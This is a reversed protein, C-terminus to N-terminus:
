ARDLMWLDVLEATDATGSTVTKDEHDIEIGVPRLDPVGGGALAEEEPLREYPGPRWWYVQPSISKEGREFQHETLAQMVEMAGFLHVDDEIVHVIVYEPVPFSVLAGYPARSPDVHRGLVHVHAGVYRHTGGIHTVPVGQVDDSEAYHPEAGISNALATGFVRNEDADGLDARNLVTMMDPHDIVVTELLGPALRRAVVGDRMDGIAEDTYIRTRLSEPSPMGGARQQAAYRGLVTAAQDAFEAAIRPVVAPGGRDANRRWETIDQTLCHGDPLVIELTTPEPLTAQFGREALARLLTEGVLDYAPLTM